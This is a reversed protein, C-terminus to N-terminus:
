CRQARIYESGLSRDDPFARAMGRSLLGPWAGDAGWRWVRGTRSRGRRGETRPRATRSPRPGSAAAAPRGALDVLFQDLDVGGVRDAVGHLRGLRHRRPQLAPPMGAASMWTIEVPGRLPLQHRPQAAGARALRDQQDAVHVHDFGLALVPGEIRELQLLDVAEEARRPEISSLAIAAIKTALRISYALSPKLGSRSM